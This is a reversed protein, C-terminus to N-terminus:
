DQSTVRASPLPRLLHCIGDILDADIKQFTIVGQSPGGEADGGTWTWFDLVYDVMPRDPTFAIELELRATDGAKVAVPPLKEHLLAYSGAADIASGHFRVLLDRRARIEARLRLRGPGPTEPSWSVLELRALLAEKMRADRSRDKRRELTQRVWWLGGAVPFAVLYSPVVGILPSLLGFTVTSIVAFAVIFIWVLFSLIGHLSIWSGRSPTLLDVATILIGLGVVVGLVIGHVGWDAAEM